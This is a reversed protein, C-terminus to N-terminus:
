KCTVADRISDNAVIYTKRRTATLAYTTTYMTRYFCM